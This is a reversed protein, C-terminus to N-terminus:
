TRRVSKKAGILHHYDVCNELPHGLADKFLYNALDEPIRAHCKKHYYTEHEPTWSDIRLSGDEVCFEVMRAHTVVVIRSWDRIPKKCVICAPRPLQEIM